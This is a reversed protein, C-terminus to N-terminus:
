KTEREAPGPPKICKACFRRIRAQYIFMSKGHVDILIALIFLRKSVEPERIIKSESNKTNNNKRPEILKM